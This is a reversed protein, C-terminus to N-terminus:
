TRMKEEEGSAIEQADKRPVGSPRMTLIVNM